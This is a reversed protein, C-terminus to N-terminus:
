AVTTRTDKKQQFKQLIFGTLWESLTVALANRSTIASYPVGIKQASRAMNM